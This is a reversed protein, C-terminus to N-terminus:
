WYLLYLNLLALILLASFTFLMGSVRQWSAGFHRILGLAHLGRGLLLCVGAIHLALSSSGNIEAIILMLLVLPVYETFNGHARIYQQFHSDGGDGLPIKKGRRNIIVLVTLYFFLMALLSAYFASIPILM